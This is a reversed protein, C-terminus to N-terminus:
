EDAERLVVNWRIREGGRVTVTTDARSFGIRRVVIKWRGVGLSDLHYRGLSDSHASRRAAVVAADHLARGDAGRVTGSVSAARNQASSEDCALAILCGGGIAWRRVCVTLPTM